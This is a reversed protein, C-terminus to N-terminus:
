WFDVVAGAFAGVGLGPTDHVTVNPEFFFEDQVFPVAATLQAELRLSSWAEWQVRGILDGAVWPRSSTRAGLPSDSEIRLAGLEFGACPLLGVAPTPEFRLPCATVQGSIWRFTATGADTEAVHSPALLGGLRLAPSLLGAGELRAEGFVGVAFSAGPAVASVAGAHLGASGVWHPGRSAHPLAPLPQALPPWPWATRSLRPPPAVVWPDTWRSPGVAPPGAPGLPGSPSAPPPVEVPATSAKPDIALATILAMASVVAACTAGDVERSSGDSLALHGRFRDGIAEVRVSFRRASEGPAALRARSTRQGIQRILEDAGPCGAAAEYDILIPEVPDSPQALARSFGGPGASLILPLALALASPTSSRNRGM